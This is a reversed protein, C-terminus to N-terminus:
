LQRGGSPIEPNPMEGTFQKNLEGVKAEIDDLKKQLATVIDEKSNRQYNADVVLERMFNLEEKLKIIQRSLEDTQATYLRRQRDSESKIQEFLDNKAAEFSANVEHMIEARIEEKLQSSYYFNIFDSHGVM